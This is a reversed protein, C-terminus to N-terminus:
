ASDWVELRDRGLVSIVGISLDHEAALATLASKLGEAPRADLAVYMKIQSPKLKRGKQMEEWAAEGSSIGGTLTKLMKPKTSRAKVPHATAFHRLHRLGRQGLKLTGAYYLLLQGIVKAPADASSFRKAEILVIKHPGRLPLLMVDVIGHGRGARCRRIYVADTYGFQGRNRIANNEIFQETAM